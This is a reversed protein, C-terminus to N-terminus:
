VSAASPLRCPAGIAPPKGTSKWTKRPRAQRVPALRLRAPEM